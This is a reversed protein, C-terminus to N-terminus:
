AKNSKSKAKPPKPVNTQNTPNGDPVHGPPPPSWKQKTTRVANFLNLGPNATDRELVPRFTRDTGPIPIPAGEKTYKINGRNQYLAKITDQVSVRGSSIDRAMRDMILPTSYKDSFWGGSGYWTDVQKPAKTRVIPTKAIADGVWSRQEPNSNVWQAYPSRGKTGASSSAGDFKSLQRSYAVVKNYESQKLDLLKIEGSKLKEVLRHVRLQREQSTPHTSTGKAKKKGPTEPM